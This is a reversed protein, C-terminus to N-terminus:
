HTFSSLFYIPTIRVLRLGSSGFDKSASWVTHVRAMDCGIANTDLSMASVFPVPSTVDPSDFVSLAYMEDSIFHLDESQCFRLCEELAERTYCQGIPNCPNCVILAKAPISSTRLAEALYRTIGPRFMDTADPINVQVVHVSSRM